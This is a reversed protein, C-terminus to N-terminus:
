RRPEASRKEYDAIMAPLSDRSRGQAVDLLAFSSARIQFTKGNTQATVIWGEADGVGLYAFGKPARKYPDSKLGPVDVKASAAPAGRLNISLESNAYIFRAGANPAKGVFYVQVAIAEAHRSSDSVNVVVRKQTGSGIENADMRLGAVDATQAEPAPAALSVSHFWRLAARTLPRKVNHGEPFAELRVQRFGSALISNRVRLTQAPTAIRDRQGSTIFIKTSFFGPGPRFKRYGEGLLNENIGALYLGAVRNGKIALLPAILCARKAGGSIGACAVPWKNSGPFSRHLADLAALTMAARWGTSDDQPREPGDAALVLWGESLAAPLYFPVDGRNQRQFDSTSFVILVPWTKRPDFGPPVALVAVANPPVQNGGIVAFTKQESNLPVSVSITKGPQVAVGQFLPGQAPAKPALALLSLSVLASLLSSRFGSPISPGPMRLHLPNGLIHLGNLRGPRSSSDLISSPSRLFNKMIQHFKEKVFAGSAIDQHGASIRIRCNGSTRRKPSM